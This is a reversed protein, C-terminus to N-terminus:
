SHSLALHCLKQNRVPIEPPRIEVKLLTPTPEASRLERVFRAPFFKAVPGNRARKQLEPLLQWDVDSLSFIDSPESGPLSLRPVDFTTTRIGDFGATFRTVPQAGPATALSAEFEISKPEVEM